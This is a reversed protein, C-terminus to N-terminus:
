NEGALEPLPDNAPFALKACLSYFVPVLFLVLVTALMLGFSMSIAMPILTQAQFSTELLVPILGAITTLSTLVVPRFRQQGASLLATRVDDGARSRQNIFDILVISDNVVVGTLALMGFMSFITLPLQLFVHGWIAGIFGFPIIALIILPQLYSRFQMTLLVFMLLMAVGFGRLLSDIAETSHEQQGEWRVSVKKYQGLLGPM